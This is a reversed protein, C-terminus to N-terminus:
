ENNEDRKMESIINKFEDLNTYIINRENLVSKIKLENKKMNLEKFILYKPQLKYQLRFLSKISQRQSPFIVQFDKRLDYAIKRIENKEDENLYAILITENFNLEPYNDINSMIIEMLRDVGFAFGISGIDPGGFSKIMGDYRGGGLVTCQSGLADSNSVFEFVIDNYYDLGRVLYPNIVYKIEFEDLLDLLNKFREKEISSLYDILKPANKVFDKKIEEKDDLIRLVNKQLRILSIENLQEKYKSFYEKLIEIYNNRSEFSGLNNIELTINSIKLSKLFDYALKIIEFNNEITSNEILEVGGQIFQRYRGKQPREYRFMPGFYALKTPELNNIKNEVFARITSATGEPRLAIDRQGNDKFLYMEKSVIDSTEGVSRIFLNADEIIPTCIRKFNYNKIIKFFKNEILNLVKEELGYIDRTGKLRQFM